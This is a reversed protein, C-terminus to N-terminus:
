PAAHAIATATISFGEIGAEIDRMVESDFHADRFFGSSTLLPLLALADIAHGEITVETGSITLSDLWCDDPLTRSLAELTVIASPNKRKMEVAYYARHSLQQLDDVMKQVNDADGKLGLMGDQLEQIAWFKQGFAVSPALVALLAVLLAIKKRRLGSRGADKVDPEVAIFDPPHDARELLIGILDLEVDRLCRAAATFAFRPVAMIEVDIGETTPSRSVIRTTFIAQDPRWPTLRDLENATIAALHAEAALPMVLSRRVGSEESLRLVVRRNRRVTSAIRARALQRDSKSSKFDLVGLDKHPAERETLQLAGDKLYAVIAARKRATSLTPVADSLQGIWWHWSTQLHPIM